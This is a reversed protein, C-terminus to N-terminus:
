TIQTRRIIASKLFVNSTPTYHESSHYAQELEVIPAGDIEIALLPSTALGKKFPTSGKLVTQSGKVCPRSVAKM